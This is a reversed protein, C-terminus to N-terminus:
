EDAQEDEEYTLYYSVYLRQTNSKNIEGGEPVGFSIWHQHSTLKSIWLTKNTLTVDTYTNASLSNNYLRSTHNTDGIGTLLYIENNAKFIYLKNSKTLAGTITDFINEKDTCTVVKNNGIHILWQNDVKGMINCPAIYKNNINGLLTITNVTQLSNNSKLIKNTRSAYSTSTSNYLSCVGVYVYSDDEWLGISTNDPSSPINLYLDTQKIAEGTTENINWVECRYNTNVVYLKNGSLLLGYNEQSLITDLGSPISQVGEKQNTELNIKYYNEGKSSSKILIENEGTVAPYNPPIFQTLENSRSLCEWVGGARYIDCSNLIAMRNIRGNAKDNDFYWTNVIRTNDVNYDNLSETILEGLHTNGNNPETNLTGLGLVKSYDFTENNDDYINLRRKDPNDNTESSSLSLLALVSTNTDKYEEYQLNNTIKNVGFGTAKKKGLPNTNFNQILLDGWTALQLDQAFRSLSNHIKGEQAITGDSNILKYKYIGHPKKITSM